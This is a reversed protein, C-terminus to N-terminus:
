CEVNKTAILDVEKGCINKVVVEGNKFPPEVVLRSIEKMIEEIDKQLVPRSTKVPLLKLIQSNIKITTTVVIGM